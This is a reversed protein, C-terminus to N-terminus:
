IGHSKYVEYLMHTDLCVCSSGRAPPRRTQAAVVSGAIEVEDSGAAVLTLWQQATRAVAVEKQTHELLDAAAVLEDQDSVDDHRLVDMQKDTFGFAGVRRDDHLSQLLAEGATKEAAPTGSLVISLCTEPVGGEAGTVDPLAAKVVKDDRGLVFADLLQAVNVSVRHLAPQNEFRILPAPATISM